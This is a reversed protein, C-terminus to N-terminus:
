VTLKKKKLPIFYHDFKLKSGYVLNFSLNFGYMRFKAM